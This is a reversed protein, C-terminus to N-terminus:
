RADATARSRAVRDDLARVRDYTERTGPRRLYRVDDFDTACRAFEAAEDPFRASATRAFAQVTAGPPTSVLGREDLGRALARVAEAVAEGWDGDAARRAAERRLDAASRVGDGGFLQRKYM